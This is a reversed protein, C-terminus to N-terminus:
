QTESIIPIINSSYRVLIRKLLLLSFHNEKLIRKTETINKMCIEDGKQKEPSGQITNRKSIICWVKEKFVHSELVDFGILKCLLSLSHISFYSIHPYTFM